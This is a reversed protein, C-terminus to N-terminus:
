PTYLKPQGNADFGLLMNARTSASPLQNLTNPDTLPARLVFALAANLQQIQEVLADAIQEVTVPFFAQNPVSTPQTYAVTRIITLYSGTPIPSGPNYTVSGGSPNGVGSVSYANSALQAPPGGIPTYWVQLAPTIGDALYPVIFNFAFSTTAGNGQLTVIAGTSSITM